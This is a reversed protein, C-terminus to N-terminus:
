AGLVMRYRPVSEEDTGFELNKLDVSDPDVYHGLLRDWVTFISALNKNALEPSTAHHIAHYRPTTFFWELRRQWDHDLDWNTHMMNNFVQGLVINLFVWFPPIAFLWGFVIQPALFLFVHVPTARNGSFWYLQKPSHHFRHTSWMAATHMWRHTAYRALDSAVLYITLSVFLPADFTPRMDELPRLTREMLVTVIPVSGWVVALGLVDAALTRRWHTTRAPKVRELLGFIAGLSLFTIIPLVTGYLTKDDV